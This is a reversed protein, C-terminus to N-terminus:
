HCAQCWGFTCPDQWPQSRSFIPQILPLWCAVPSPFAPFIGEDSSPLRKNHHNIYNTKLDLETRKLSRISKVCQTFFILLLRVRLRRDLTRQCIILLHGPALLLTHLLLLLLTLLTTMPLLQLLRLLFTTATPNAAPLKIEVRRILVAFHLLVSSSLSVLLPQAM